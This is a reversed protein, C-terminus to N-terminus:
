DQYASVVSNTLYVLPGYQGYILQAHVGWSGVSRNVRAPLGWSAYLTCQNIGLRIKEQKVLRQDISLGRRKAESQMLQPLGTVNAYHDPTHGRLVQGLDACFEAAEVRRLRNPASKTADQAIRAQLKEAEAAAFAKVQQCKEPTLESDSEVFVQAVKTRAESVHDASAYKRLMTIKQEADNRVSTAGDLCAAEVLSAVTLRTLQDNAIEPYALLVGEAQQFVEYSSGQLLWGIERYAEDLQGNQALRRANAANLKAVAVDAAYCNGSLALAFLASYLTLPQM